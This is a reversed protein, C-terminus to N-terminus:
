PMRSLLFYIKEISRKLILLSAFPISLVFLPIFNKRNSVQYDSIREVLQAKRLIKFINSQIIRYSIYFAIAAMNKNNAHKLLLQNTGSIMTVLETSRSDPVLRYLCQPNSIHYFNKTVGSVEILFDWDEKNALKNCFKLRNKIILERRYLCSHIPIILSSDWNKLIDWYPDGKLKSRFVPKRPKLFDDNIVTLYDSYVVDLTSNQIFAEVSVKLKDRLLIDDADLFILYEGLAEKAGLNRSDAVGSNKKSICKFRSDDACFYDAISRSNDTSGDDVILCEWKAYTQELVSQLTKHLYNAKNYCPVVISILPQHM